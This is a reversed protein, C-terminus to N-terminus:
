TTRSTTANGGNVTLTGALAVLPTGGCVPVTLMGAARPESTITLRELLSVPSAVTGAATVIGAPCVDAENAMAMAASVFMSPIWFAVIAAVAAPYTEPLPMIVM